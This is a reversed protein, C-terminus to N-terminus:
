FHCVNKTPLYLVIEESNEVRVIEEEKKPDNVPRIFSLGLVSGISSFSVTQVAAVEKNCRNITNVKIM